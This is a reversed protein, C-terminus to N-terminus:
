EKLIQTNNLITGFCNIILYKVLFLLIIVGQFHDHKHNFTRTTLTM